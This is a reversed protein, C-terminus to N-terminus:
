LLTLKLKIGYKARLTVMPIWEVTQNEDLELSFRNLPNYLCVLLSSVTNASCM